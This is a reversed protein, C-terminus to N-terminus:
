PNIPGTVNQFIYANLLENAKYRTKRAVFILATLYVSKYILKDV